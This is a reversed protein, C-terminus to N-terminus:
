YKKMKDKQEDKKNV